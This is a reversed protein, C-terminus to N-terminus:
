FVRGSLYSKSSSHHHVLWASICLCPTLLVLLFLSVILQNVVVLPWLDTTIIWSTLQQGSFRQWLLCQQRQTHIQIFFQASKGKYTHGLPNWLQAWLELTNWLADSVWYTHCVCLWLHVTETQQFRLGPTVCQTVPATLLCVWGPPQM